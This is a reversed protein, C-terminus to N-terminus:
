PLAFDLRLTFEFPEVEIAISLEAAAFHAQERAQGGGKVAGIGVVIAQDRVFLHTGKRDNVAGFTGAQTGRM